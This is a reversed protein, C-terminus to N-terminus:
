RRAADIQARRNSAAGGGVFQAREDGLTPARAVIATGLLPEREAFPAREHRHLIQEFAIRVELHVCPASLEASSAPGRTPSPRGMFPRKDSRWDCKQVSSLSPTIIM